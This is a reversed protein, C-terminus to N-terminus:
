ELIELTIQANTFICQEAAILLAERAIEEASLSTHRFLARAAALAVPAGSGIAAIPEDPELIDGQGSVMLIQERDGVLLMAELRRLARDMRWDKALDVAARKLNGSAAMIKAEFREFLTLADATHGAFGGLIGDQYFRRIKRAKSKVIQQGLTVQGDGAMALRRHRLVALITTARMNM